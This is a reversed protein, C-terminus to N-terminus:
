KLFISFSKPLRQNHPIGGTIICYCNLQLWGNSTSMIPCGQPERKYLRTGGAPGQDDQDGAGTAPEEGSLHEGSRCYSWM